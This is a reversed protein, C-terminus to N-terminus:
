INYGDSLDYLTVKAKLFHCLTSNKEETRKKGVACTADEIIKEICKSRWEVTWIYAIGINMVQLFHNSSFGWKNLKKNRFFDWVDVM